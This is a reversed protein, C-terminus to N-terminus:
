YYNEYKMEDGGTIVLTVEELEYAETLSIRIKKLQFGNDEINEEIKAIIVDEVSQKYYMEGAEKCEMFVDMSQISGINKLPLTYEWNMELSFLKLVPSVLGLVLIVGGFFSIYKSFTKRPVLFILVKILLYLVLFRKVYELIEQM